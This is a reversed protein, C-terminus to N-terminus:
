AGKELRRIRRDALEGLDSPLQEQVQHYRSIEEPSARGLLVKTELTAVENRLSEARDSHPHELGFLETLVADDASGNVIALFLSEPVHEMSRAEGPGPLRILGRPSAAQCIFPSHTTVLFQIAPFRSTLWFGIKQQWAIHLHAEVEDILVIGPLKCCLHGEPAPELHLEGYTAWLRRVMDLVLATLTRYGDSLQELPLTVDGRTVWLGESDVRKARSGDPLMGDNLLALVADRLEAAGPREELARFHVSKLWEVSETLTAADLFLNVLRACVPDSYLHALWESQPGLRRQPGYGAVFWGDAREGWAGRAESYIGTNPPLTGGPSAGIHPEWLMMGETPHNIDRGALQVSDYMPDRTMCSSVQGRPRGNRVWGSFYGVLAQAALPGVLSLAIAKLLTSKGSGNRGAFVTWGAYTGDGRDFSISQKGQFCRIDTIEFNTIYM